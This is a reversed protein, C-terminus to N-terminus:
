VKVIHMNTLIIVVIVIAILTLIIVFIVIAILTVIIVVIFILLPVLMTYKNSYNYGRSKLIFIIIVNIVFNVVVKDVFM